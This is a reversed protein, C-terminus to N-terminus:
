RISRSASTRTITGIPTISSCSACAASSWGAPWCATTPTVHGQGARRRVDRADRQSEKGFDILEPGSTQMRYAMEYSAIRTAIEPDGTQAMEALNLDRIAEFPRRSRKRRSARRVDLSRSDSRRRLPVARGSLGHAPIREGVAGRRRASRAPGSQLVVFGPLDHSESGIGYTVWSGMSPRGFRTSGTNVFCKAPGHNFNETSVGTLYAIDDSSAPSTRCSSRSGPAATATSSSSAAAHGAAEAHGQRLHGHLRLAQGEHVFRADAPRRVEAARSTTSCSSSAPGAPWSCTSSTRRRPRFTHRSPTGHPRRHAPEALLGAREAAVGARDQGPRRRLPQFLPAANRIAASPRRPGHSNSGADHFRGPQAARAGREDM